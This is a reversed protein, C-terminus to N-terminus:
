FIQKSSVTEELIGWLSVVTSISVRPFFDPLMSPLILL